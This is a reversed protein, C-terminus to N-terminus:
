WTGPGGGRRKVRRDNLLSAAARARRLKNTRRGRGDSTSVLSCNSVAKRINKSVRLESGVVSVDIRGRDKGM